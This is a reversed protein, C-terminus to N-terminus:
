GGLSALRCVNQAKQTNQPSSQVPSSRLTCRIHCVVAREEIVIRDHEGAAAATAGPLEADPLREFLMPYRPRAGDGARGDAGEVGGHEGLPVIFLGLFYPKIGVRQLDEIPLLLM